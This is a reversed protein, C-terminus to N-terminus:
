QANFYLTNEVRWAPLSFATDADPDYFQLYDTISSDMGDNYSGENGANLLQLPVTNGGSARLGLMKKAAEPMPIQVEDYPVGLAAAVTAGVRIEFVRLLYDWLDNQRIQFALLFKNNICYFASFADLPKRNRCRLKVLLLALRLVKDFTNLHFGPFFDATDTSPCSKVARQGDAQFVTAPLLDGTLDGSQFTHIHLILVLFCFDIFLTSKEKLKMIVTYLFKINYKLGTIHPGKTQHMQLWLFTKSFFCRHIESLSATIHLKVPSCGESSLDKSFYHVTLVTRHIIGFPDHLM